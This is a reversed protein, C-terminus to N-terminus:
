RKKTKKGYRKNQKFLYFGIGGIIALPILNEQIKTTINATKKASTGLNEIVTGASDVIDVGSCILKTFFDKEIGFKAFYNAGECDLGTRSYFNMNMYDEYVIATAKKEAQAKTWKNILYYSILEKHFRIWDPVTWDAQDKKFKKLVANDKFVSVDDWFIGNLKRFNPM